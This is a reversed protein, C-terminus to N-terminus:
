SNCPPCLLCRIPVPSTFIMDWGRISGGDWGGKKEDNSVLRGPSEGLFSTRRTSRRSFSGESATQSRRTESAGPPGHSADEKGDDGLSPPLPLLLASIQDPTTKSRPSRLRNELASPAFIRPHSIRPQPSKSTTNSSGCCPDWSCREHIITNYHQFFAYLHGKQSVGLDMITWTNKHPLHSNKTINCDRLIEYFEQFCVDHPQLVIQGCVFSLHEM